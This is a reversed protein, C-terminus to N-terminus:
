PGWVGPDPREVGCKMVPNSKFEDKEEVVVSPKLKTSSVGDEVLDPCKGMVGVVGMDSPITSIHEEPSDPVGRPPSCCSPWPRGGLKVMPGKKSSVCAVM